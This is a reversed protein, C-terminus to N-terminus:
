RTHRALWRTKMDNLAEIGAARERADVSRALDAAVVADPAFIGGWHSSEDRDYITVDGDSAEILLHARVFSQLNEGNLLYGDVVRNQGALDSDIADIASRGTLILNEATRSLNDGAFRHVSTRTAVKRVIEEASFERLRRRNRAVTSSTLGSARLGSLEYLLAWSTSASWARGAEARTSLFEGYSRDEVLWTGDALQRGALKRQHLLATIQRSSLKLDAAADRTAILTM